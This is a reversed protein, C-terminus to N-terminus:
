RPLVNTFDFRGSSTATSSNTARMLSFPSQTSGLYDPLYPTYDFPIDVRQRIYGTFVGLGSNINTYVGEPQEFMDPEYSNAYVTEQYKQFDANVLMVDVRVTDFSFYNWKSGNHLVSATSHPQVKLYSDYFPIYRIITDHVGGSYTELYREEAEHRSTLVRFLQESGSSNKVNILIRMRLGYGDDYKSVEFDSHTFSFDGQPIVTTATATPYGQAEVRLTYEGGPEINPQPQGDPCVYRRLSDVYVLDFQQGTAVSGLRVTANTVFYDSTDKFVMKKNYLIPEVGVVYVEVPDTPSLLCVVNLMPNMHPLNVDDVEVMLKECSVALLSIFIIM